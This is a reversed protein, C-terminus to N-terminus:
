VSRYSTTLLAEKLSVPPFVPSKRWIVHNWSFLLLFFSGQSGTQGWFLNEWWPIHFNCIQAAPGPATPIAILKLYCIAWVFRKDLFCTAPLSSKCGGAVRKIYNYKRSLKRSGSCAIDSELIRRSINYVTKKLSWNKGCHQWLFGSLLLMTKRAADGSRSLLIHIHWYKELM